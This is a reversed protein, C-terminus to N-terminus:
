LVPSAILGTKLSPAESAATIRSESDGRGSQWVLIDYYTRINEVYHMAQLGRAYGHRTDQHWRKQMLLPLNEKVDMWKDPDGGRRETINRADDVHGLGMNYGALAFWTRDPERVDPPIRNKLQRLYRAGGRISNQPDIRNKIGLDAATTRTLMMIGRVGTPSIAKPDWLSEQYGVAALLRWDLKYRQAASRFTDLYSPLRADIHRLFKRTGVYDFKRVHGYYRERLQALRGDAAITNFFTRASELLSDDGGKPFAWALAEPETLDFAVRLEPYFHQNLRVENSDAVTYRIEKNWVKVLLEEIDVQRNEHWRIQPHEAALQQLHEAHSSGAVVEVVGGELDAPQEPPTTGSRYVLQQTIDEYAPGFRVRRARERTVTLGAAALHAERRAVMPLIDNFRRATIIKLDVGLFEAFQKALDYEFGTPGRPGEYYTTPSNRTVVVLEGKEVIQDLVAPPETFGTLAFLGTMAASGATVALISQIIKPRVSVTGNVCRNVNYHRAKRADGFHLVNRTLYM